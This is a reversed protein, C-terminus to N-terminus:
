RMNLVRMNLTSVQGGIDKQLDKIVKVFDKLVSVMERSM